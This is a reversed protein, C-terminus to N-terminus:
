VSNFALLFIGIIVLIIVVCGSELIGVFAGDFGDWGLGEGIMAILLLVGFIVRIADWM